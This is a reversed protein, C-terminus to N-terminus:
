SSYLSDNINPIQKLQLLTTRPTHTPLPLLHHATIVDSIIIYCDCTSGTTTLQDVHQEMKKVVNDQVSEMQKM